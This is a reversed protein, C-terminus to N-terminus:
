QESLTPQFSQGCYQCFVADSANAKGCFPCPRTAPAALQKAKRRAPRPMRAALDQAVKKGSELAQTYINRMQANNMKRGTLYWQLVAHGVVYTGSYAVATKPVIGWIPILGVLMRSIQRWVFGGGIVGGFEGVYDEWRTSFGLALGLKYVLFAQAKTLVIMDTINLPLDILPIIEAFGTSLSYVANSFCSDNILQNSVTNRFLPFQRALALHHDPLLDLILPVLDRQLQEPQLASGRIVRQFEWGLSYTSQNEVLDMKNIYAIVKKGSDLWKRAQAQEQSFNPSKGDLVLIILDAANVPDSSLIDSILIATETQNGPRQPDRLLQGALTHRGVGPQGVIALKVPYLAADRYPRLDVEKVNKWVNVIDKIGPM